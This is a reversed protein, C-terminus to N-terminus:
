ASHSAGLETSSRRRSGSDAGLAVAGADLRGLLERGRAVPEELQDTPTEGASYRVREAVLALEGLRSRDEAAALHAASTIERVTMAGAPPLIGRATLRRVILELLLRPRDRLPAQEIDNWNGVSVGVGSQAPQKRRAADSRQGFLGATRLENVVILGALVVVAALAGYIVLQIVSQSVGIHAVMRSFWSEDTPQERQEFISHLWSKFRSWGSDDRSGASAALIPKLNRVDPMAMRSSERTVSERAVLERFEKLSGVSLDNGSEKWGRPLWPAWAGTEVQRMLDPCRAAIRDYGIDLQPDLRAVCADINPITRSEPASGPPATASASMLAPPGAILPLAILSSVLLAGAAVANRYRASM